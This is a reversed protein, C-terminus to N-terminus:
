VRFSIGDLSIASKGDTCASGSQAFVWGDSNIAILIDARNYGSVAFYISKAPIYGTPLTFMRSGCYGDKVTGKLNVVGLQDKYYAATEYPDGYNVWSNQFASVETWADRAPLPGTAGTAGTAGKNGTRGPLGSVFSLSNWATAGDGIKCQNITSDFGIEGSLLVPNSTSWELTTGRRLQVKITM